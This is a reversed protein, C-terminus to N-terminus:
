VANQIARVERARDLAETLLCTQVSARICAAEDRPDDTQDASEVLSLVLTDTLDLLEALVTHEEAEVAGAPRPSGFLWFLSPARSLAARATGAHSQARALHPLRDPSASRILGRLADDVVGLGKYAMSLQDPLPQRHPLRAAAERLAPIPPRGLWERSRSRPRDHRRHGPSPSAAEVDVYRTDTYRVLGNLPGVAARDPVDDPRRSRTLEHSCPHQVPTRATPESNSFDSM